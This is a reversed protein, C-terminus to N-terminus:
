NQKSYLSCLEFFFIPNFRWIAQIINLEFSSGDDAITASVIFHIYLYVNFVMSLTQRYKLLYFSFSLISCMCCFFGNGLAVKKKRKQKLASCLHIIRQHNRSRPLTNHFWASVMVFGFTVSRNASWDILAVVSNLLFFRTYNQLMLRDIKQYM